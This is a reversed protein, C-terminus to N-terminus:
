SCHSGGCAARVRVVGPGFLVKDLRGKEIFKALICVDFVTGAANRLPPTQQQMAYLVVPSWEVENEAAGGRRPPADSLGLAVPLDQM